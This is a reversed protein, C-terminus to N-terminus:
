VHVVDNNSCDATHQVRVRRTHRPKLLGDGGTSCPTLLFTRPQFFCVCVCLSFVHWSFFSSLFQLIVESINRDTQSSATFRDNENMTQRDTQRDPDTPRQAGAVRDMKGGFNGTWPEFAGVQVCLRNACKGLLRHAHTLILQDDADGRIRLHLTGVVDGPTVAWWHEAKVELVGDLTSVQWVCGSQGVGDCAIGSTPQNM